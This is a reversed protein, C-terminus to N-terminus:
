PLEGLHARGRLSPVQSSKGRAAGGGEEEQRGGQSQRQAASTASQKESAACRTRGWRVTVPPKGRGTGEGASSVSSRCAWLRSLPSPSSCAFLLFVILLQRLLIRFLSVCIVSLVVCSPPQSVAITSCRRLHEVVLVSFLRVEMIRRSTVHDFGFPSFWTPIGSRDRYM